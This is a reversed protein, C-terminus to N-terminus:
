SPPDKPLPESLLLISIKEPGLGKVDRWNALTSNRPRNKALLRLRTRFEHLLPRTMILLVSPFNGGTEILYPNSGGGRDWDPQGGPYREM